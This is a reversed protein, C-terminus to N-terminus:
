VKEGGNIVFNIRKLVQETDKRYRCSYDVFQIKGKQPWDTNIYTEKTIWEHFPGAEEIDSNNISIGDCAKFGNAHIAHGVSVSGYTTPRQKEVDDFNSRRRHSFGNILFFKKSISDVAPFHDHDSQISITDTLRSKSESMVRSSFIGYPSPCMTRKGRSTKSSNGSDTDPCRTKVKGCLSLVNGQRDDDEPM